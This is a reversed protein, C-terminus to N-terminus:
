REFIFSRERVSREQVDDRELLPRLPMQTRNRKHRLQEIVNWVETGESNAASTNVVPLAYLDTPQRALADCVRCTELAEIYLQASCDPIASSTTSAQRSHCMSNSLAVTRWRVSWKFLPCIAYLRKCTDQLCWYCFCSIWIYLLERRYLAADERKAQIIYM